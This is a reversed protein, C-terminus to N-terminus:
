SIVVKGTPLMVARNMASMFARQKEEPMGLFVNYLSRAKQVIARREDCTLKTEAGFAGSETTKM